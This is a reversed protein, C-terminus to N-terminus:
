KNTHVTVRPVKVGKKKGCRWNITVHETDSMHMKCAQRSIEDWFKSVKKNNCPNRM